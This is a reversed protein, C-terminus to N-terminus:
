ENQGLLPDLREILAELSMTGYLSLRVEGRIFCLLAPIYQVQYWVGLTPNEDANVRVLKAHTAYRAILGDLVPKVAKCPSSWTAYFIVLVPSPSKLVVEEFDAEGVSHPPTLPIQNTNESGM